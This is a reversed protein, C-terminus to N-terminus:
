ARIWEEPTKNNKSSNCSRCATKLNEPTNAGGRTLPTVHDLTLDDTRGCYVCRHNDRAFVEAAFVRAVSRMADFLRQDSPPPVIKVFEPWEAIMYGEDSENLLGIKVLGSLLMEADGTWGAAQAIDDHDLGRLVGDERYQVAFALLRIYGLAGDGGLRRRLKIFKPHTFLGISLRFDTNM